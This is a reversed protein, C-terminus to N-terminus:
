QISLMVTGDSERKIVSGRYFVAHKGQRKLARRWQARLQYAARRQPPM